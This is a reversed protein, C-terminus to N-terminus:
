VADAGYYLRVTHRAEAFFLWREVLAGLSASCAAVLLAAGAWHGEAGVTAVTSALPLAFATVIVIRRLKLAHKRAVRFGFENTLYSDTAHPAELLRVAGFPGLGTASAATAVPAARDGRQWWRMKALWLALLLLPLLWALLRSSEAEFLRALGATWLGGTALAFLVFVPATGPQHWLPIAQLSAYIMGTCYVTAGAGLALLLGAAALMGDPKGGAIWGIASIVAPIYTLCAAVGERSLWSSRWQSLARWAREPHGLHFLSSLLGATVLGLGLAFALGAFGRHAPLGGLPLLLGLWFLMGYGAGSSTTFVILSWAPHV